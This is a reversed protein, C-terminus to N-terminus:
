QFALQVLLVTVPLTVFAAATQLTMIAAMLPADGGLQRALTYSSTATPAAAFLLAIVTEMENLGVLHALVVAAMPFVALKGVVALAIPAASASLGRLRLSAGVSLLVIPLAAGGLLRTMDHVVPIEAPWIIGVAIGLGVSLLLPNRVLDNVIAKFRGPTAAGSVLSILLPVMTLNTVPILLAAALIAIELGGLGYIREAAALSIFMNHRACGQLLTSCVPGSFGAIRGSLLAFVVSALFAGLIVVTYSGVLRPDFQATSMKYFLLSPLLVWYVLKDVVDWFETSPISGRRLAHGLIILGFIPAISLWISLM